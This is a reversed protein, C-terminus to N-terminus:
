CRLKEAKECGKGEKKRDFQRNQDLKQPLHPLNMERFHESGM